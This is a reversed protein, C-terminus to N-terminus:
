NMIKVHLQNALLRVKQNMKAQVRELQRFENIKNDKIKTNQLVRWCELECRIANLDAVADILAKVKRSNRAM